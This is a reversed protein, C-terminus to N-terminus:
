LTGQPEQTQQSLEAETQELQKFLEPKEIRIRSLLSQCIYPPYAGSNLFQGLAFYRLVRMPPLDIRFEPEHVDNYYDYIQQALQDRGAAENDDRLAYRAYAEALLAAIQERADNIGIGELEETFRNTVYQELSVNFDGVPYRGRLQNYIKLAEGKLGAQYFSLVANKLMNRHGNQLAELRMADEKYKDLIALLAKNYSDFIRLDPGLFIDYRRPPMGPQGEAQDEPVSEAPRPFLMIKGGRFLNQLSHAVIRDTNTEDAGLDRDPDLSAMKLGKVAWYIAHSDPHRWDLPLHTNPDALDIPGHKQNVEAMLAPDLKWTHRLEYAKAFLDFRKLAGTARYADIVEFAAPKFRQPDLRLTLYNRVFKDQEAFAEDAEQLATIFPALNPDGAVQKWTQPAHILAEYFANDDPEMDNDQSWLLPSVAAALQLKYYKHVDDSVGGIKHQFIRALERYLRISKPNTPIGKDRLLEYGNRVWRWRQDPQSAPIAVSINYAMNWAQFEWVAAFRPQLTTIWEALQRADFFQGEEKLKDARMWLIDVVLGRFAGMAVTAFALSPPANELAANSVLGMEERQANIYDLQTGGLFLLGAAVALCTVITITDRGRM